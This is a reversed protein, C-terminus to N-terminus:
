ILFGDSLCNIFLLRLSIFSSASLSVFSKAMLQASYRGLMVVIDLMVIDQLLNLATKAQNLLYNHLIYSFIIFTVYTSAVIM